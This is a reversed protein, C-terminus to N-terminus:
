FNLKLIFETTRPGGQNFTGSGRTVRYLGEAALLGGSNQATGGNIVSGAGTLNGNNSGFNGFNGINYINVQPELSLSDPLMKFIKNFHFPYSFNADVERYSGNEIASGQPLALTPTVGGIAALQETTFLGSNVLVQGAPTVKGAGTENYAAIAKYVSNGQYQRMYSGPKTGPLMDYSQGDGTVDTKFIQASLGAGDNLYLTSPPASYYHGIIGIRLGGYFRASGGASFIHKHDLDGPGFNGLNTPDNQDHATAAFFPDGSNANAM